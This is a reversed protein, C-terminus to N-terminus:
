IRFLDSLFNYVMSWENENLNYVEINFGNRNVGSRIVSIMKNKDNIWQNNQVLSNVAEARDSTIRSFIKGGESGSSSIERIINILRETKSQNELLYINVAENVPIQAALETGASLRYTQDLLTLEDKTVPSKDPIFNNRIFHSIAIRDQPILYNYSIMGSGPIGEELTKYIGSLSNGNKWGQGSTFNRPKPNLSAGAPGDGKGTEGHCSVCSSAYLNRGNDLMQQDPNEAKNMDVPPIIKAETVKLDTQVTSDPIQPPVSQRAVLSLNSVYYAGVAFGIILIYIYAFGFLKGPNEKIQKYYKNLEPRRM